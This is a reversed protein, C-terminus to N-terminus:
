MASRAFAPVPGFVFHALENGPKGTAMLSDNTLRTAQVRGGQVPYATGSRGRGCASGRLPSFLSVGSVSRRSSTALSSRFASRSRADPTPKMPYRDRMAVPPIYVWSPAM